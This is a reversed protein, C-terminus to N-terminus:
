GTTQKLWTEGDVIVTFDGLPFDATIVVKKEMGDVFVSIQPVDSSAPPPPQVVDVLEAFNEDKYKIAVFRGIFAGTTIQVWAETETSAVVDGDFTQGSGITGIYDNPAVEAGKRVTIRKGTLVRYKM